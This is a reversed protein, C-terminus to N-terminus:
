WTTARARSCRRRNRVTTQRVGTQLSSSVGTRKLYCIQSILDFVEPGPWSFIDSPTVAQIASADTPPLSPDSKVALQAKGHADRCECPSEFTVPPSNAAAICLFAVAITFTIVGARGNLSAPSPFSNFKGLQLAGPSGNLMMQNPEKRCTLTNTSSIRGSYPRVSFVLSVRCM